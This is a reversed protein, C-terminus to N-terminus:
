RRRLRKWRRWWGSRRRTVAQGPRRRMSTCRNTSQRWTRSRWNPTSRRSTRRHSRGQRRCPHCQRDEFCRVVHAIADTERITPSSSTAWAKAKPRAPWWARSISSNSPRRCCASRSPSPPWRRRHPPRAGRCHRRQARDHLVSLEGGRNGSQHSCQVADIQRREAARRDRMQPEYQNRDKAVHWQRPLAACAHAGRRAPSHATRADRTRNRRGGAAALNGSRADIADAILAPDDGRPPHLVYDAVEQERCRATARTGVGIRMRWFDSGIQASIDKLGNHGANGGGQKLKVTGPKLDLEDHAVLIEAPTIRYFRALAAVTTGSRNMFTQPLALKLDAGDSTRASAVM